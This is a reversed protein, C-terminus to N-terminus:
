PEYASPSAVESNLLAEQSRFEEDQVMVMALKTGSAQINAKCSFVITTMCVCVELVSLVLLIGNIGNILVQLTKNVFTCNFFDYNNIEQDKHCPSLKLKVTFAFCFYCIGSMALLASITNLAVTSIIMRSSTGKHACLTISGSFVFSVGLGLPIEGYLTQTFWTVAGVAIMVIGILIQVTGLAVPEGKLFMRTMYPVEPVKTKYEKKESPCQVAESGVLPIIPTLVRVGNADTTLSTAM